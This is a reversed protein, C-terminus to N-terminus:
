LGSRLTLGEVVTDFMEPSDLLTEAEVEPLEVGAAVSEAGEEVDGVAAAADDATVDDVGAVASLVGGRGKDEM